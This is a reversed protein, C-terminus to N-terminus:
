IEFLRKVFELGKVAATDSDPLPLCEFAIVDDYNIAKLAEKIEEFNIHGAGPYKRNSDAFHFHGLKDKAMLISNKFSEEEINMHFTDLHIRLYTSSMKEILALAEEVTNIFNTEYRNIPEILLEVKEKEAKDLVKQFCEFAFSEYKKREEMEPISGRISGIIVKANLVKAIEIYKEVREIAKERVAKDSNTFSLKEKVFALGTGLTSIKLRESESVKLINELNLLTPDEIHIEVADYGFEKAKRINKEIDGRFIVPFKISADKTITLSFKM